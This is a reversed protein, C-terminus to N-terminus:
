FSPTCLRVSAIATANSLNPPKVPDRSTYDTRDYNHRDSLGISLFLDSLGYEDANDSITAIDEYQSLRDAYRCKGTLDCMRTFIM